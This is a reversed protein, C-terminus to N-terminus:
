QPFSVRSENGATDVASVGFFFNDISVNKLVHSTRAKPVFAEHEWMPQDTARWRITYGALDKETNAKWSLTTDNQVAGTQRVERPPRPAAALTALVAANVRAVRATYDFDVFETLDGYQVEGEKRVDQHQRTYDENPESFRVAPFGARIFPIHDGGRGFRDHRYIMRVTFGPLFRAAAQRAARCLQRHPSDVGEKSFAFCRLSQDDFIGNGGHSNGVIDNTIMGDVFLGSEQAWGAWHTSGLLGQEEGVFAIFVLTADFTHRGLVRALELVVATGSGDDNAGPAFATANTVDSVRSDYHGGVVYFRDPDTAGPLTAVVNWMEMEEIRENGATFKDFEVDLRGGSERKAELFRDYIWQRAAGIGETESDTRSGTHRTHFGVLAEVDSRLRDASVEELIARVKEEAPPGAAVRSLGAVLVLLVGTWIGQRM